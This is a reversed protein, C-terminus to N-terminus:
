CRIPVDYVRQAATTALAPAPSRHGAAALRASAVVQDLDSPGAEVAPGRAPRRTRGRINQAAGSSWRGARGLGQGGPVPHQTIPQVPTGGPRPRGSPLRAARSSDVVDVSDADDTVRLCIRLGINAKMAPSIVGAPRQTALILHLGLSRGRQAIDLLGALFDPQEAALTAFEDVVIVLSPPAARRDRLGALDAVQHEALLHERRRLEARLSILARAALSFDLDTIVGTTHPLEALPGFAAGGKYDILLFTTRDPAASIALGAIVTQLLESKGSGTTGAILLHPGDRELDISLAGGAWTGIEAALAPRAWRQSMSARIGAPAHLASM